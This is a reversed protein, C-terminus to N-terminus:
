EQINNPKIDAKKRSSGRMSKESERFRTRMKLPKTMESNTTIRAFRLAMQSKYTPSRQIENYAVEVVIKPQM